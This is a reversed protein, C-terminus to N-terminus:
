EIYYARYHVASHIESSTAAPNKFSGRVGENEERGEKEERTGWSMQDISYLADRKLWQFMCESILYLCSRVVGRRLDKAGEVARGVQM